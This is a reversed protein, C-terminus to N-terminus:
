IGKIQKHLLGLLEKVMVPVDMSANNGHFWKKLLLKDVNNEKFNAKRLRRILDFDSSVELSEDFM